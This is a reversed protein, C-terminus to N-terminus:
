SNIHRWRKENTHPSLSLTAPNRGNKSNKEATIMVMRGGDQGNASERSQAM